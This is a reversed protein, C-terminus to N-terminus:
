QKNEMKQMMQEREQTRMAQWKQYQEPSLIPQVKADTAEGIQRLQMGKQLPGLSSNNKIAQIKPAEEKLIPLMQQKQAPSLQLETSIKELKAAIEAKNPQGGMAGQGGMASQGGYPDQASLLLTIAVIALLIVLVRTKMFDRRPRLMNGGRPLSPDPLEASNCFKM